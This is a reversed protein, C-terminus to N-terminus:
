FDLLSRLLVADRQKRSLCDRVEDLQHSLKTWLPEPLAEPFAGAIALHAQRRRKVKGMLKLCAFRTARFLWGALVTKRPLHRAKYALALFVARTVEIAPIQAGTQRHAASYVFALYREIFPRFSEASPHRAYARLCERDTM